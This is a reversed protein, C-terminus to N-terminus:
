IREHILEKLRQHRLTILKLILQKRSQPIKYMNHSEPVQKDIEEIIKAIDTGNWKELVRKIVMKVTESYIPMALLNKILEFHNLKEGEWHIESQGKDIYRNIMEDSQIFAEVKGDVLERGLSSGSDYIPAFRLDIQYLIKPLQKKTLGAAISKTARIFRKEFKSLKRNEEKEEKELLDAILTYRSIMAWNEQHRDGNGILADFVIIEIVNDIENKLKARELSNLILQFSYRKQHDKATPDYTPSFAQLYKVGEILEEEESNIMTECICGMVEGDIAVDYRLINFGLMSGLEFAIVESWFEFRYDKGPKIQSRKFYYFKGDPGQLYRKARTGGTNMWPMENWQDSITFLKPM